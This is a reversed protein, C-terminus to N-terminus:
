VSSNSVPLTRIVDQELDRLAISYRGQYLVFPSMGHARAFANCKVVVWAPTDSIAPYLIQGNLVFRNLGRMVEEVSTTHDWFQTSYREASSQHSEQISIAKRSCVQLICTLSRIETRSCSRSECSTSM